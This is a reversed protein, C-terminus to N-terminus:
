DEDESKPLADVMAILMAMQDKTLKRRQTKGDRHFIIVDEGIPEGDIIATPKEQGTLKPEEPSYRRSILYEEDDTLEEDDRPVINGPILRLVDCIKYLMEKELKNNGSELEIVVSEDVGLLDAFQKQSLNAEERHYRINHAISKNIIQIKFGHRKKIDSVGFLYDIDVNFFDAIRKVTELGPEREGREYMNISSKSIGIKAALEQQSLNYEKRLIKLQNNFSSM